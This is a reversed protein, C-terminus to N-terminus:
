SRHGVDPNISHSSIICCSTVHVELPTPFVRPVSNILKMRMKQIGIMKCQQKLKAQLWKYKSGESIFTFFSGTFHQVFHAYVCGCAVVM